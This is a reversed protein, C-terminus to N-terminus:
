VTNEPFEPSFQGNGFMNGIPDYRCVVVQCDYSSEYYRACGINQVSSWSLQSAHNANGNWYGENIWDRNARLCWGDGSSGSGRSSFLNEGQRGGHDLGCGNLALSRAIDWAQAELNGDWGVLRGADNGYIRMRHSNTMSLCVDREGGDVPPAVPPAPEAPPPPEVTPEPPPPSPAETVPPAPENPETIPAASTTTTATSSSITPAQTPVLISTTLFRGSSAVCVSSGINDTLQTCTLNTNLSFLVQPRINNSAAIDDCSSNLRVTVTKTCDAIPVAVSGRPVVPDKYDESNLTSKICINTGTPLNGKFCELTPNIKALYVISISFRTRLGVCTDGAVTTYNQTCTFTANDSAGFQKETNINTFANSIPSDITKSLCIIDDKVLRTCDMGPNNKMIFTTNTGLATAISGCSDGSKVQWRWPCNEVVNKQADTLKPNQHRLLRGSGSTRSFPNLFSAESTSVLVLLLLLASSCLM